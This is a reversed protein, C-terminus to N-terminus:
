YGWSMLKWKGGDSRGLWFQWTYEEGATWGGTARKPARFRSEFMICQTFVESNDNAEELENLWNLNEEDMSVADSSYSLSYLKCGDWTSFTKLITDVAAMRDEKTYVSSEGYEIVANKTEAEGCGVLLFLFAFIM